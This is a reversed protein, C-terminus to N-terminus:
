ADSVLDGIVVQYYGTWQPVSLTLEDLEKPTAVFWGSLGTGANGNIGVLTDTHDYIQVRSGPSFWTSSLGLQTEIWFVELSANATAVNAEWVRALPVHTYRLNRLQYLTNGVHTYAKGDPTIVTRRDSRKPASRPDGDLNLTADPLWLGRAQKTSVSAVGQTIGALNGTYGLLDRLETSTWTISYTGAGTWNLTSKGTPSTGTSSISGTWNAPTRVANLRAVVHALLASPGSYSGATISVATPGGGSNTADISVGAPVTLAAEWRGAFTM